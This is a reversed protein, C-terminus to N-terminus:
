GGSSTYGEERDGVDPTQRFLKVIVNRRSNAERHGAEREKWGEEERKSPAAYDIEPPHELANVFFEGLGSSPAAVPHIM